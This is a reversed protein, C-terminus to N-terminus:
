EPSRALEAWDGIAYLGREVVEGRQSRALGLKSRLAYRMSADGVVFGLVRAPHKRFRERWRPQPYALLNLLREHANTAMERSSRLRVDAAYGITILDRGFPSQITALVLDSRTALVVEPPTHAPTSATASVEARRDAVAIRIEADPYDWLQIVADLRDDAALTGAREVARARVAAVLADFQATAFPKPEPMGAYRELVDRRAQEPAIRPYASAHVVGGEVRDGPQLDHIESRVEPALRRVTDAPPGMRLRSESIWWKRPDPLVFHAAFPFAFRPRLRETVLAFNRLFFVERERAVALDDKGPVHICNPFYSAGGFGCFLYDIRPLRRRLVRCYEEILERRSAHLADNANLLVQGGFEISLMSDDMHTFVRLKAAHKGKRLSIHTGSAVERIRRFGIRVLYDRMATDYRRPIVAM